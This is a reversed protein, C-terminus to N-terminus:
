TSKTAITYFFLMTIKHFFIYFKSFFSNCRFFFLNVFSEEFVDIIDGKTLNLEEDTQKAYDYLAVVTKLPVKAPAPAAPQSQMASTSTADSANDPQPAPPKLDTASTSSMMSATPAVPQPNTLFSTDPEPPLIAQYPEFAIPAEPKGTPLNKTAFKAIDAEADIDSFSKMLMSVGNQTEKLIAEQSESYDAILKKMFRIRDLDLGELKLLRTDLCEYYKAHVTEFKECATKYAKESVQAQKKAAEEQKAFSQIKKALAQQTKKKKEISKIDTVDPLTSAEIQAEKIADARDHALKEYKQKDSVDKQKAAEVAAKATKFETKLKLEEKEADKVDKALKKRMDEIDKTLKKFQDKYVDDYKKGIINLYESVAKM